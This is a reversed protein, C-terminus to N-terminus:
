DIKSLTVQKNENSKSLIEITNAPEHFYVTNSMTKGNAFLEISSADVLVEITNVSDIDMTREHTYTAEGKIDPNVNKRSISLVQDRLEISFYEEQDNRINVSLDTLDTQSEIKLYNFENSNMTHEEKVNKKEYVTTLRDYFESPIEQVLKNDKVSLVRPFTMMGSWGHRQEDLINTRGWMQQWAVIIRRGQDDFCTQPAYYDLGQDIEHYHNIEFSLTEWDVKGFIAISSNLNQYQSGEKPMNMPSLVLVDEGDIEFLDPCEWINGLQDNGELLVSAKSWEVLDESSFIFIQGQTQENTLTKSAVVSYYIEGRKFVKPDRFDVTTGLEGLNSQGIVPNNVHKEFTIGDTSTAICQVQNVIGNEEYVGTYMLVLEEDVVIASGSFCGDKDYPQDPALAIPLYEWEILDKSKAHGWHMTDWKSDYPNAQYFLHYEGEFYVFGNPDNLWGYEPALHYKPRFTEVMNLKNEKVFTNAKELLNM